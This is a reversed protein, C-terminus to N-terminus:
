KFCSSCGGLVVVVVFAARPQEQLPPLSSMLLSAPRVSCTITCPQHIQYGLQSPSDVAVRLTFGGM